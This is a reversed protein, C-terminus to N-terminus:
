GSNVRIGGDVGGGAPCVARAGDRVLCCSGMAVLGGGFGRCLYCPSTRYQLHVLVLGMVATVGQSNLEGRAQAGQLPEERSLLNGMLAVM